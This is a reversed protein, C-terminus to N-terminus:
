GKLTVKMEAKELNEGARFKVIRTILALPLPKDFPFQVSGRAHKFAAIEKKFKEIGSAM